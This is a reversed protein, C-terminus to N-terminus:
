QFLHDVLMNQSGGESSVRKMRRNTWRDHDICASVCDPRMKARDPKNLTVLLILSRTIDSTTQILQHTFVILMYSSYSDAAKKVTLVSKGYVITCRRRLPSAAVISRRHLQPSHDLKSFQSRAQPVEVM